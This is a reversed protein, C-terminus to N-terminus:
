TDIFKIPKDPEAPQPNKNQADPQSKSLLQEIVKETTLENDPVVKFQSTFLIIPLEM